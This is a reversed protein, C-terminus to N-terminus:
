FGFAGLNHRMFALIILVSLPAKQIDRECVFPHLDHVDDRVSTYCLLIIQTFFCM